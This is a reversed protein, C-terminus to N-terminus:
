AEGKMVKDIMRYVEASTLERGRSAAEDVQQRAKAAAAEIQRQREDNEQQMKRIQEAAKELDSNLKRAKLEAEAQKIVLKQQELNGADANSVFRLVTSLRDTDLDEPSSTLVEQAILRTVAQKIVRQAEDQDFNPDRSIQAMLLKDAWRAWVRKYVEEFRQAFRYVNTKPQPMGEDQLWDVAADKVSKGPELLRRALENLTPRPLRMLSSTYSEAILESITEVALQETPPMALVPNDAADTM